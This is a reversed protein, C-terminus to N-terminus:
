RPCVETEQDQNHLIGNEFIKALTGYNIPSTLTDLNLPSSLTGIIKQSTLTLPAVLTDQSNLSFFSSCSENDLVVPSSFTGHNIPSSLAKNKVPSPLTNNKAPLTRHPLSNSYNLSSSTITASCTALFSAGSHNNPSVIDDKNMHSSSHGNKLPINAPVTSTGSHNVLPSIITLTDFKYQNSGPKLTDCDFSDEEEDEEIEELRDGKKADYEEM